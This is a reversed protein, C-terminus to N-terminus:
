NGITLNTQPLLKRPTEMPIPVPVDQTTVVEALLQEELQRNQWVTHGQDLIAFVVMGANQTFVVGAISAMGGDDHALTGTKGVAAGKLPTEKLRHRLTGWDSSVIPMIDELKLGQRKTEEHLARIVALLASPTVRNHELGSTTSLLLREPPLRLEDILFREVGKAGGVMGGVREAVFNSSHANMYLLVDRLPHSHLVFLPQQGAPPMAVSPSEADGRDNAQGDDSDQKNDSNQNATEVSSARDRGQSKEGDANQKTEAKDQKPRTKSKDANKKDKRAADGGRKSAGSKTEGLKMVKLMNKASEEPSENFNFSFNPAVFVGESARTIGRARLERAIMAAATDGFTPDDGAVYIKGRLTGSADVTGETYVRTEFRHGAGLRRLAVLTTALKVLSAPNFATDANHSAFIKKGDMSEIIVGHKEPAEDRSAYWEATDFTPPAAVTHSPAGAIAANATAAAPADSPTTIIALHQGTHPLLSLSYPVFSLGIIIVLGVAMMAVIPNRPNLLKGKRRQIEKEM